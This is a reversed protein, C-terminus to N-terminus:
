SAESAKVVVWSGKVSENNVVTHTIKKTIFPLFM